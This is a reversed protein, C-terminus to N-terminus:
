SALAEYIRRLEVEQAPWSYKYLRDPAGNRYRAPNLCVQKIASAISLPDTQDMTVGIELEEVFARMDPLDSVCIPLEAFAAEFLKNPMCYRYSLGVDQIPCIAANATRIVTTVHRAPVPDFLEVRDLVGHTEAAQLFWADNEAKRPGLVAFHYGPLIALAAAVKDLGRYKGSIGGTYVVLPVKDALRMRARIDEGIDGGGPDAIEPANMVLKPCPFRDAYFSQCGWSVTILDNVHKLCGRELADIFMKKEPPLPPIRETEIEHADYVVKAGFHRGLGVGGVLTYLDHAHVIDPIEDFELDILNMAYLAHRCFFIGDVIKQGYTSELISRNIMGSQVRKLLHWVRRSLAYGLRRRPHSAVRDAYIESLDRDDIWEALKELSANHLSYCDFRRVPIGDCNEFADFGQELRGFVRVQYGARQLTRAQKM